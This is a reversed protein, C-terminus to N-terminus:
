VWFLQWVRGWGWFLRKIGWFTFIVGFNLLFLYWFQHFCFSSQSLRMEVKSWGWGWILRLILRLQVEVKVEVWYPQSMFAVWDQELYYQWYGCGEFECYDPDEGLTWWDGWRGPKYSNWNKKRTKFVCRDFNSYEWSKGHSKLIEYTCHDFM